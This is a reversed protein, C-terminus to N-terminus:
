AYDNKTILSDPAITRQATKGLIQPLLKPALGTGPRKVDLNRATFKEGKKILKIAVVSKRAVKINAIEAPSPKKVPSGLITEVNKVQRVLEKLELPEVSAIHDPGKMRRSLTFHKEILCAGFTAAMVSVEIGLTHDSYGVPYPLAKTMTLMARLNVEDLPCPYNSTCHLVIIQQNGTKKVATLAEKIETMTAMGTALILPKKLRAAYQLLPINTLDGSGFKFAPVKLSQLLDVSQFGGHPASLFIIKRKRCREIIRPYFREPLELKKVMALQSETKGLNKKQYAAMQAHRTTVNEARFTQFKVADAKAAAAADVLKLALKLKGNHNVGAEAIVFPPFGPGIKQDAIKVFKM